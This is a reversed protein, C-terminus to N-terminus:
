EVGGHRFLMHLGLVCIKMSVGLITETFDRFPLMSFPKKQAAHNQRKIHLQM